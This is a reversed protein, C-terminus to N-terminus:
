AASASGKSSSPAGGAPWGSRRRTAPAPRGGARPLVLGHGVPAQRRLGGPQNRIVDALNVASLEWDPREEGVLEALRVACCLSHFISSSGTLLAYSWPKGDVHRAWVIEGARRRCTSSGTSPGNCWRGCGARSTSTAPSAALPALHRGRRVRVRQHRAQRGRGRPDRLLRALSGDHRQIAELWGYAREAEAHLGAIDLAMATEVHNWPDCHGGRFWPIMGSPLQLEAITAATDLVEAATLVGPLDPLDHRTVAQGRAPTSSWARAWCRTSSATPSAPPPPASVIDWELVRRYGRVLPNTENTPGVACRLWWYPSHLAHARHASGPEVGAGRLKERLEAERYIRVHGGAVFPAHYEDSLAWCVREPLWAPVTVAMTGGPRLVRALEAMAAGDDAIHELVESAIVRDFTADAFPLRTADGQVTGALSSPAVEGAEAMAAFTNRVEKLESEAYDLAVVTRM